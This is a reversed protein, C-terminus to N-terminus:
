FKAILQQSAVDSALDYMPGHGKSFFIANSAEANRLFFSLKSTNEWLAKQENLFSTSLWDEEFVSISIPDPPAFSGAP